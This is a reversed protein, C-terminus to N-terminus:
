RSKIAVTWQPEREGTADVQTQQLAQHRVQIGLAPRVRVNRDSAGLRRVLHSPVLDDSFLFENPCFADSGFRASWSSRSVLPFIVWYKFPLRVDGGFARVTADKIDFMPLKREFTAIGIPWSSPM